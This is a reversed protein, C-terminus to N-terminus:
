VPCPVAAYERTEEGAAFLRVTLERVRAGLTQPRRSAPLVSSASVLESARVACGLVEAMITEVAPIIDAMVRDADAHSLVLGPVDDSWVRLGGDPRRQLHIVIKISESPTM